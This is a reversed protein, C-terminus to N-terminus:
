ISVNWANHLSYYYLSRSRKKDSMSHDLMYCEPKLRIIHSSICEIIQYVCAINYLERVCKFFLFASGGPFEVVLKLTASMGLAIICASVFLNYKILGRGGLSIGLDRVFGQM